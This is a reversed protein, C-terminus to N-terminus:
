TTGSPRRRLWLLALSPPSDKVVYGLLFRGAIIHEYVLLGAILRGNELPPGMEAWAILDDDIEERVEPDLGVLDSRARSTFDIGWTV